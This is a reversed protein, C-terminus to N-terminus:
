KVLELLKELKYGSSGAYQILTSIENYCHLIKNGIENYQDIQLHQSSIEVAAIIFLWWLLDEFSEKNVWLVDQYRNVGLYVQVDSDSLIRTLLTLSANENSETLKTDIGEWWNHYSTLLKILTVARWNSRDDLGLNNFTSVLIKNLM